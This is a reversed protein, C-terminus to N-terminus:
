LLPESLEMENSSQLQPMDTRRSSVIDLGLWGWPWCIYRPASRSSRTGGDRTDLVELQHTLEEVRERLGSARIDALRLSKEAADRAAMAATATEEKFKLKKELEEMVQKAEVLEQNVASLRALYEQEVARGAAAEQEAAVKWRTIEEEAAAIDMMLGEVNENAAREKEELEEILQKRQSLEKAQGELQEALLSSEARLREVSHRLEIIELQSEKIINELAGALAYIEDERAEQGDKDFSTLLQGDKLHNTLRFEVGADSLGKEAAQFLERTKSSADATLNKLLAGRLLVGIHEKERILRALTENLTKVESNKEDIFDRMKGVITRSLEYILEMGALSARVNEELGTEQPVFLLESLESQDSNNADVIGIVAYLQDHVKSVLSLQQVILPRQSEMKSELNRLKFDFEDVLKRSELVENEALGLKESMESEIKSLKDEKEAMSKNLNEALSTKKSLEEKLQGITAELQSVEIAIEYNRQEMQGRAENRSKVTSEIQRLLEEVIENMRKIIGYAIAPFGTYKQSRPLGGAMFNKIHNVKGSIKEIGSVLMQAATEIESRSSDKAKVAEDLQKAIEDRQKSVEEKTRIVESLENSLKENARVTEERERLVDDKLKNSEDRKKIAEHALVKLRNFSVQLESKSKEAALRAQKERDLEALLEQFKEVSVDEESPSAIVVPAPEDDAEVDSLVVDGEDEGASAM